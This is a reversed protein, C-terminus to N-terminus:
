RDKKWQPHHKERPRGDSGTMYKVVTQYTNDAPNGFKVMGTYDSDVPIHRASPWVFPASSKKDM